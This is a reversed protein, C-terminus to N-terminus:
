RGRRQTDNIITTLNNQLEEQARALKSFVSSDAGRADIAVSVNTQQGQSANGKPVFPLITGPSDPVFVEPRKEGVIYPQGARVPGGNERFIGGIVNGLAAGLGGLAGGSQGAGDVGLLKEFFGTAIIKLIQIGLKKLGDEVNDLDDLLGAFGEALAKNAENQAKEAEEIKDRREDIKENTAEVENRYDIEAGKLKRMEAIQAPTANEGLERIAAQVEYERELSQILRDREEIIATIEELTSAEGVQGYADKLVALREERNGEGAALEALREKIRLQDKLKETLRETEDTEEVLALIEARIAEEDVDVGGKRAADAIARAKNRAEIARTEAEYADKGQVIAAQLRIQDQLSERLASMSDNLKLRADAAKKASDTSLKEKEALVENARALDFSLRTAEEVADAYAVDGGSRKLADERARTVALREQEVRLADKVTEAKQSEFDGIQAQVAALDEQLRVQKQLAEERNKAAEESKKAADDDTKAKEAALKESETMLENAKGIQISLEAAAKVSKAYAEDGDSERLADQYAREIRLKAQETELADRATKARKSEFGGLAEEIGLLDTRLRAERRQADERRKTADAKTEEAELEAQAAEEAATQAARAQTVQQRGYETLMEMSAARRQTLRVIEAAEEAEDATKGKALADERAREVALREEETQVRREATNAMEVDIGMLEKQITAIDEKLRKIKLLGDSEKAIPDEGGGSGGAAGAGPDAPNFSTVTADKSFAAVIEQQRKLEAEAAIVDETIALYARQKATLEDGRELRRDIAATVAEVMELEEDSTLPALIFERNAGFQADPNDAAFQEARRKRIKRRAARGADTDTAANQQESQVSKFAAEQDALTVRIGRIIEQRRNQMAAITQNIADIQLRASTQADEGEKLMAAAHEERAQKLDDTAQELDRNVTELASFKRDLESTLDSLAQVKDAATQTQNSLYLMAGTIATIALGIPGGFFAMAAQLGRMAAASAAARSTLIAMGGSLLRGTRDAQIMAAGFRGVLITAIILLADGLTDLNEALMEIGRALANTVGLSQDASGVFRTFANNLKTLARPINAEMREAIEDSKSAYGDLAKLVVDTTVKGEAALNRLQGVTVGMSAAIARAIAPAGELVSVLEDGRLSGSALAQGLQRIAATAGPAAKAITETIRLLKEQSLGLGDTAVILNAYTQTVATIESNSRQAVGYLRELGVAIAEEDDVVRRLTNGLESWANAYKTVLNATLAAGIIGIAAQVKRSMEQFQQGVHRTDGDVGERFRRSNNQFGRFDADYVANLREVTTAL